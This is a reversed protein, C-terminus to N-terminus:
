NFANELATAEAIRAQVDEFGALDQPLEGHLAEAVGDRMIVVNEFGPAYISGESAAESAVEDPGGFLNGFLGPRDGLVVKPAAADGNVRVVLTDSDGNGGRFIADHAAGDTQLQVIANEVERLDLDGKVAASGADITTADTM